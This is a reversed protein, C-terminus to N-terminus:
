RIIVDGGYADIYVITDFVIPVNGAGTYTGGKIWLHGYPSLHSKGEALTNYPNQMNGNESGGWSGDVYVFNNPASYPYSANITPDSGPMNDLNYWGNSDGNWGANMYYYPALTDRYGCVVVTHKSSSIIVPLHGIVSDRIPTEHGSTLQVTGRYRFYSNIASASPWAGSGGVEYDMDVAVGCDYMLNAVYTNASTLSTTPMSSWNYITSGFDRSHHYRIYGWDDMYGHTGSGSYPWEHYRMKIAMATATCGTPIGSTNGNHSVVEDNYYQGQGWLATDLLIYTGEPGGPAEEEDPAGSTKPAEQPFSGKRMYMRLKSWNPHTTVAASKMEASELMKWRRPMEKGLFYRMFNVEPRDWRFDSEVDFAIVPEIRDEGSVVVYGTPKYKVVYALVEGEAPPVDLLESQSVMYFVQHEAIRDLRETKEEKTMKVHGSKVETSYWFDAVAVAEKEGVTACTGISCFFTCMITIMLFIAAASKCFKVKKM